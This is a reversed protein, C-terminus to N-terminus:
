RMCTSPIERIGSLINEEMTKRTTVNKNGNRGSKKLYERSVAMLSSDRSGGNKIGDQQKMPKKISREVKIRKSLVSTPRMRRSEEDM